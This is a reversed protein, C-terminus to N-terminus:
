EALLSEDKTPKGLDADPLSDLFHVVESRPILTKEGLKKARIRGQALLEYVKTRGCNLAKCVGGVSYALVESTM